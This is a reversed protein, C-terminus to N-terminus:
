NRSSRTPLEPLVQARLVTLRDIMEDVTSADVELAVTLPIATRGLPLVPLTLWISRRDYNLTWMTSVDIEMPMMDQRKM